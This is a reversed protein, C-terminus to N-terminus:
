IYTWTKMYVGHEYKDMHEGKSRHLSHAMVTM